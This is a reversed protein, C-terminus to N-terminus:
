KGKKGFITQTAGKGQLSGTQGFYQGTNFFVSPHGTSAFSGATLGDEELNHIGLQQAYGQQTQLAQIQKAMNQQPKVIGYYNAAANGGQGITVYPSVAPRYYPNNQGPMGMQASAAQAMAFLGLGTVLVCGLLNRRM